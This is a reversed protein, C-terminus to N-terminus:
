SGLAARRAHVEGGHSRPLQSSLMPAVNHTATNRLVM